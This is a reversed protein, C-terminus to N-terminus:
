AMGFQQELKRTLSHLVLRHAIGETPDSLVVNADMSPPWGDRADDIALWARPQRRAVDELVQQGRHLSEFAHRNMESHFTAGVCRARLGGPLRKVAGGYRYERVWTTSLVIAVTPYPDLLTELLAAHEFLQHDKNYQSGLYAGRRRSWFVGEPHLVGDFDLYV